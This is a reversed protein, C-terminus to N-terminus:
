KFEGTALGDIQLPRIEIEQVGIPASSRSLWAATESDFRALALLPRQKPLNKGIAPAARRVPVIYAERPVDPVFAAVRLPEVPKTRPVAVIAIGALLPVAWTLIWRSSRRASSVRALVRAALGPRPECEAYTALAGDILRDLEDSNM